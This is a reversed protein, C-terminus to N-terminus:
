AEELVEDIFKAILEDLKEQKVEYDLNSQLIEKAEEEYRKTLDYDPRINGFPRYGTVIVTNYNVQYVDANWGYAGITFYKREKLRLLGQLECYGVKIVNRYNNMIQKKTTKM